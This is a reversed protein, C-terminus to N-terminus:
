RPEPDRQGVVTWAAHEASDLSENRKAEGISLLENAAEHNAAFRQKETDLLEKLLQARNRDTPRATALEMAYDLRSEDGPADYELIRQAFCRAAEVFQEDNLTVLAQLPTNTRQRQIM